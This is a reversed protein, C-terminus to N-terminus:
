KLQDYYTEVKIKKKLEEVKQDVLAERKKNKTLEVIKERLKEQLIKLKDPAIERKGTVQVIQYGEPTKVPKSFEGEKLSFIVSDLPQSLQGRSFTGLVGGRTKSAAVSKDAILKSFDAGKKLEQYIEEAEKETPVLIEKLTVTESPILNPNDKLIAEVEEDKVTVSPEIRAAIYDQSLLEMRYVRLKSQFEPKSGFKEKEAEGSILLTNVLRDLIEKKEDPSFPNGRKFPEYRKMYEEFDGQTIAQDGVKALIKQSQSYLQSAGLFFFGGLAFAAMFRLIRRTM